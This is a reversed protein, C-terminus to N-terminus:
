GSIAVFSKKATEVIDFVGKWGKPMFGTEGPNVVVVSGDENIMQIKGSIVTFIESSPYSRIKIQGKQGVWIGAKAKGAAAFEHSVWSESVPNGGAVIKAPLEVVGQHEGTAESIAIANLTM